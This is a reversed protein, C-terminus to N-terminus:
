LDGLRVLLAEKVLNYHGEKSLTVIRKKNENTILTMLLERRDQSSEAQKLCAHVFNDISYTIGLALIEEYCEEINQKAIWENIKDISWNVLKKNEYLHGLQLLEVTTSLNVEVCEKFNGKYIFELFLLYADYSNEKIEIIGSQSERFSTNFLTAFYPSRIQLITKHASIEKGEIIFTVDTTKKELAAQWYEDLESLPSYSFFVNKKAHLFPNDPSWYVTGYIEEPKSFFIDPCIDDDEKKVAKETTDISLDLQFTEHFINKLFHRGLSVVYLTPFACSYRDNNKNTDHCKKLVKLAIKNLNEEVVKHYKKQNKKLETSINQNLFDTIKQSDYKFKENIGNTNNIFVYHDRSPIISCPIEM